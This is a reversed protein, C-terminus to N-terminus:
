VILSNCNFKEGIRILMIIDARDMEGNRLTLM